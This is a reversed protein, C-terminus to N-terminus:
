LIIKFLFDSGEAAKLKGSHSVPTVPYHTQKERRCTTEARRSCLRGAEDLEEGVTRGLETQDLLMPRGAEPKQSKVLWKRERPKYWVVGRCPM